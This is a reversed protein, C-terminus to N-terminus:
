LIIILLVTIVQGFVSLVFNNHFDDIAAIDNDECECYLMKENFIYPVPNNKKVSTDENSILKELKSMQTDNCYQNFKHQM